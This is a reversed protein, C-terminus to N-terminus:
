ALLRENEPDIIFENPTKIKIKAGIIPQIGSKSITESFELAGFLNNTDTVAIAPM